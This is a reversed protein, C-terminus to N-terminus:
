EWLTKRGSRLGSLECHNSSRWCTQSTSRPRIPRPILLEHPNITAGGLVGMVEGANRGVAGVEPTGFLIQGLPNVKNEAAGNWQVRDHQPADWLCPFSVPADAPRVDRPCWPLEGLGRQSHASLMAARARFGKGAAPINRDNYGDHANLITRVAARLDVKSFCGGSGPPLITAAFRDFKADEAATKRLADALERLFRGVNGMAPGGDIIYVTGNRKIQGTHCARRIDAGAGTHRRRLTRGQRVRDPLGDPNGADPTPSTDWHGCTNPM